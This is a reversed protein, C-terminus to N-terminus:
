ATALLREIGQRVSGPAEIWPFHGAQPVIEVWAGTIRSATDTSASIPMPSREGHVFGCPVPVGHLAAELKPLEEVVSAFTAGLCALSFRFVPMPPVRARDAFYSPWVLRMGEAAMEDTGEGRMMREDLERARERVEEPTRAFMEEDFAAQGGDGVGGLPDVILAGLLREPVKLAVHLALHGGWSHGLVVARKWGLADLVRVVDGVHEGVTFPGETSSPALGRQQFAAVEYGDGLEAPFGDLYEYSL